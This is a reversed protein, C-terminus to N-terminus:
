ASAGRRLSVLQPKPVTHVPTRPPPPAAVPEPEGSHGMWMRTLSMLAKWGRGPRPRAPLQLPVELHDYGYFMFYTLAGYPTFGDRVARALYTAMEPLYRWGARRAQWRVVDPGFLV